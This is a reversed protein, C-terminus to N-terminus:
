PLYVEGEVTNKYLRLPPPPPAQKRPKEEPKKADEAPKPQQPFKLDAVTVPETKVVETDNAGRLVLYLTGMQQALDLKGADKLTVLLTVSRLDRQDGVKSDAAASPELRNDVALVEVNQLLTVTGGGTRDEPYFKQTTLNVDVHHKPRLFGALGAAVNPTTITVARWGDPILPPLGNGPQKALKGDLVYDDKLLPIDVVKDVADEVRQLAGSPV